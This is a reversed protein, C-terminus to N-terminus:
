PYIVVRQVQSTKNPPTTKYFHSLSRTAQPSEISNSHRSPNSCSDLVNTRKPFSCLLLSLHFLLHHFTSCPMHLRNVSELNKRVQRRWKGIIRPQREIYLYKTQLFTSKM